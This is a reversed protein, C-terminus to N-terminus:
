DTTSIFNKWFDAIAEFFGPQVITDNHGGHPFEKWVKKESACLQYLEKMHFAPVIEDRLGSLFLIPVNKIEPLVEYSPWV